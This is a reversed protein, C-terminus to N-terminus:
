SARRAPLATVRPRRERRKIRIAALEGHDESLWGCACIQDDDHSAHFQACAEFRAVVSEFTAEGVTNMIHGERTSDVHISV